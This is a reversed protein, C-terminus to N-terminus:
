VFQNVIRDFLIMLIFQHIFPDCSDMLSHIFFPISLSVLARASAGGRCFEARGGGERELHGVAGADGVGAAGDGVGPRGGGPSGGGPRWIDGGGGGGARLHGRPARLGPRPGLLM